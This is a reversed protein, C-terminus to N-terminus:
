EVLAIFEAIELFSKELEEVSLCQEVDESEEIADNLLKKALAIHHLVEILRSKNM